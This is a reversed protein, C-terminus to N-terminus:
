HYAQVFVMLVHIHELSKFSSSVELYVKGGKKGESVDMPEEAGISGNPVMPMSLFDRGLVPDVDVLM